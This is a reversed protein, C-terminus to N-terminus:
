REKRPVGQPLLQQIAELVSPIHVIPVHRDPAHAMERVYPRSTGPDARAIAERDLRLHGEFGDFVLALPEGAAVALWRRASGNAYGVLLALDYVPFIAGRFGAMGVLAPVRSPLRTIRKDTFIGAIESLRLAYTDTALRVALFDESAATSGTRVEAFSADFAQRLATATASHRPESASVV